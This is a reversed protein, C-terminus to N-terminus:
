DWSGGDVLRLRSIGRAAIAGSVRRAAYFSLAGLRFLTILAGDGVDSHSCSLYLLSSCTRSRPLEPRTLARGGCSVANHSFDPTSSTSTIIPPARGRVRPVHLHRHDTFCSRPVLPRTVVRGLAM